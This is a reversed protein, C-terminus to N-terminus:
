GVAVRDRAAHTGREHNDFQESRLRKRPKYVSLVVAVTLATLSVMPPFILQSPFPATAPGQALQRGYEAAESIGPRLLMLVLTTLVINMVLKIAVWWYRVLGYKTGLGLVVGTGLSALGAIAMPWVAFLELAQYALAQTQVSATFRATFVLVGVGVDIGIWAAIAAIHLVLFLKRTKANLRM